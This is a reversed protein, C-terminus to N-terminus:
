NAANWHLEADNLVASAAVAAEEAWLAMSDFEDNFMAREALSLARRASAIAQWMITKDPLETEIIQEHTM